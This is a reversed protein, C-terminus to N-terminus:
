YEEGIIIKELSLLDRLSLGRKKVLKRFSASIPPRLERFPTFVDALLMFSEPSNANVANIHQQIEQNRRLNSFYDAYSATFKQKLDPLGSIEQWLKYVAKQLMLSSFSCGLAKDDLLSFFRIFEKEDLTKGSNSSSIRASVVRSLFENIESQFVLTKENHYRAFEHGTQKAYFTKIGGQKESIDLYVIDGETKLIKGLCADGKKDWYFFGEEDQTKKDEIAKRIARCDIPFGGKRLYAHSPKLKYARYIAERILGQEM